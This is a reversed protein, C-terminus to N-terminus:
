RNAVNQKASHKHCLGKRPLDYFIQVKKSFKTIQPSIIQYIRVAPPSSWSSCTTPPTRDGPGARSGVRTSHVINVNDFMSPCYPCMIISFYRTSASCITTQGPAESGGRAPHQCHQLCSFYRISTPKLKWCVQSIPSRRWSQNKSIKTEVKLHRRAITVFNVSNYFSRKTNSDAM